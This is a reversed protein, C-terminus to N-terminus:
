RSSQTPRMRHRLWECHAHGIAINSVQALPERAGTKGIRRWALSPSVPRIDIIKAAEDRVPALGEVPARLLRAKVDERLELDSSRIVIQVKQMNRSLPPIRRREQQHM